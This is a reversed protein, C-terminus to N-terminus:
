FRTLNCFRRTIELGCPCFEPHNFKNCILEIIKKSIYLDIKRAETCAEEKSLGLYNSFLTELIRHKWILLEGEVMGNENLRVGKYKEYDLLGLNALKQFHETVTSPHVNFIRAFETTSVWENRPLRILELIYKRLTEPMNETEENSGM